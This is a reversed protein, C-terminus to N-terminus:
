QPNGNSWHVWGEPVLYALDDEYNHDDKPPLAYSFDSAQGQQIQCMSGNGHNCGCLWSCDVCPIQAGRSNTVPFPDEDSDPSDTALRIKYDDAQQFLPFLLSSAAAQAHMDEKAETPRRSLVADSHLVPPTAKNVVRRRGRRRAFACSGCAEQLSCVGKLRCGTCLHKSLFDHLDEQSWYPMTEWKWTRFNWIDRVAKMSIGYEEALMRSAPDRAKRRAKALFIEIAQSANIVSDKKAAQSSAPWPRAALMRESLLKNGQSM